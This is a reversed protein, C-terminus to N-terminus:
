VTGRCVCVTSTYMYQTQLILGALCLGGACVFLLSTYTYQTQSTPSSCLGGACVFLLSTCMYQTQSTPRSCLGGACVFLLPTLTSHKYYLDLWVYDGQVCLCYLHVHVTHHLVEVYDWQVCLCYLHVHVTHHLVAVYDGQVCLCYLHLHVTNTIYTCGSMTGRCVCVPSTYTYQIQSTPSSCQSVVCVFLLPTLTSHKHHLVAVNHCWM